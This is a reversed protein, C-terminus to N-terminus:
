SFLQKKGRFVWIQYHYNKWRDDEKKQNNDPHERLM